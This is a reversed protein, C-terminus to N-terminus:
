PGLCNISFFCINNTNCQISCSNPENPENPEWWAIHEWEPFLCLWFADMIKKPQLITVIICNRANPLSLWSDTCDPCYIYRIGYIGLTCKAADSKCKEPQSHRQLSARWSGMEWRHMQAQNRGLLFDFPRHVSVMFQVAMREAFFDKFVIFGRPFCYVM